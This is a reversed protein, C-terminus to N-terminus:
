AFFTPGMMRLMVQIDARLQDCSATPISDAICFNLGTPPLKSAVRQAGGRLHLPHVPRLGLLSGGVLVPRVAATRRVMPNRNDRCRPPRLRFVDCDACRSFSEDWDIKSDVWDFDFPGATGQLRTRCFVACAFHNVQIMELFDPVATAFERTDEAKM